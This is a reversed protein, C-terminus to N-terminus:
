LKVQKGCSDVTILTASKNEGTPTSAVYKHTETKGNKSGVGTTIVIDGAGKHCGMGWLKDKYQAPNICKAIISFKSSKEAVLKSVIDKGVEFKNYRVGGNDKPNNDYPILKNAIEINKAHDINSKKEMEKMHKISSDIGERNNNLSAYSAGDNRFLQLPQGKNGKIYLEYVSSNCVHDIALNTYNLEIIMGTLCGPDVVPMSVPPTRLIQNVVISVSVFQEKKYQDFIDKYTTNKGNSWNVSGDGTNFNNATCAYGQTDTKSLRNAPCFPQEVWKTEGIKPPNITPKVDVKGKLLSSVYNVITNSRQQALFGPDVKVNGNEKDTNPIRSEGSSIVLNVVYTQTTPAVNNKALYEIVEQIKTTIESNELYSQNYFGAPFTVNTNINMVTKTTVEEEQTETPKQTTKPTQQENLPVGYLKLIHKKESESIIMRKM